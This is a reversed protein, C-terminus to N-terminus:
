QNDKIIRKVIPLAKNYVTDGQNQLYKVGEKWAKNIELDKIKNGIPGAGNALYAPAYGVTDAIVGEEWEDSNCVNDLQDVLDEIDSDSEWDQAYDVAVKVAADILQNSKVFKGTKCCDLLAKAMARENPDKIKNIEKQVIGIESADEKIANLHKELKESLNTM